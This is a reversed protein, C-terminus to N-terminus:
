PLWEAFCGAGTEQWERLGGLWGAEENCTICAPGGGHQPSAVERAEDGAVVHELHRCRETAIIPEMRDEKGVQSLHYSRCLETLTSVHLVGEIHGRDGPQDTHRGM